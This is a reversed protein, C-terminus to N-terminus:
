RNTVVRSTLTFQLGSHDGGSIEVRSNKPLSRESISENSFPFFGPHARISEVLGITNGEARLAAEILFERLFPDTIRASGIGSYIGNAKERSLFHLDLLTRVVRTAAYAVTERQGLAEQCRRKLQSVSVKDQLRLMRGIQTSVSWFFPYAVSLMGYHIAPRSGSSKLLNLAHDRFDRHQRDPEVWTRMLIAIRKYRSNKKSTTAVAIREALLGDLRERVEKAPLGAVTWDAAADLWALEVPQSFGIAM